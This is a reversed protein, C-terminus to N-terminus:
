PKRLKTLDMAPMPSRKVKNFNQSSRLFKTAPTNVNTKSVNKYLVKATDEDLPAPLHKELFGSAKIM